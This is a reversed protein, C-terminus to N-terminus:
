NSDTVLTVTAKAGAASVRVVHEGAEKIVGDLGEIMEPTVLSAMKVLELVVDKKGIGKFLHGKDNAKAKITVRAGDLARVQEALEANKAAAAEDTEATQRAIQAEKDKTAQEALKRPILYNLAYGDSVNVVKGRQGVGGVDKLMIVKM